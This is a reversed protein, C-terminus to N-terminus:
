SESLIRDFLGACWLTDQWPVVPSELLGGRVCRVTEEAEWLFGNPYDEIFHEILIGKRNYLLAERGAHSHPLFISGETGTITIGERAAALVGTQIVGLCNSFRLLAAAAKDAGTPARSIMSKVEEPNEKLLYTLLEAAYVGVDWMAGGALEPAFLRSEPQYEARFAVVASALEAQGIRGEALWKEARKIHPLFRSWMAEMVFVNQKKAEAFVAEAEAQTCVMCKECLVPVKYRLCLMINEYHFNHTTAIYVADLDETDLMAAYDDYFRPIKEEAAFDAARRASKSSVAAVECGARRAADCFKHAIRGAGMIGFRFAQM